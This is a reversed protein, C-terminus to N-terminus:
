EDCCDGNCENRDNNLTSPAGLYSLRPVPLPPLRQRCPVPFLICSSPCSSHQGQEQM